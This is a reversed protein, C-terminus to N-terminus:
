FLSYRCSITRSSRPPSHISVSPKFKPIGAENKWSWQSVGIRMERSNSSNRQSLIWQLIESHTVCLRMWAQPNEFSMTRQFASERSFYQRVFNFIDFISYITIYLTWDTNIWISPRPIQFIWRRKQRIANVRILFHKWPVVAVLNFHRTKLRTGSNKLYSSSLKYSSSSWLCYSYYQFLYHDPTTTHIIFLTM